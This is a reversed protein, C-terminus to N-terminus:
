DYVKRGKLKWIKIQFFSKILFFIANAYFPIEKWWVQRLLWFGSLGLKKALEPVEKFEGISARFARGVGISVVDPLLKYLRADFDDQKPARMATWIVNAGSDRVMKAIGEYDFEDVKAFPLSYAGVIKNQQETNYKSVIEDLVDQTDGLLYHKLSDDGNILMNQFLEPGCTRNVEKVGWWRGCWTLPMGDPLNMFSKEMLEAYESHKDAYMVMRMNSVCVYGGKKELAAQTIKEAADKQNTASIHIKGIRYREKDM